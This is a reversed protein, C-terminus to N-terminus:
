QGIVGFQIYYTIGFVLYIVCTYVLQKYCKQRICYYTMLALYLFFSAAIVVKTWIPDTRTAFIYIYALPIPILSIAM